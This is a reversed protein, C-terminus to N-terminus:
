TFFPQYPPTPGPRSGDCTFPPLQAPLPTAPWDQLQCQKLHVPSTDVRPHCVPKIYERGQVYCTGPQQPHYKYTPCHTNPRNAGRLDNELDVMNGMVHSVATGGVIGVGIRCQNCNEYRVPDLMYNIPAVSEGLKKMYACQDYTLRNM